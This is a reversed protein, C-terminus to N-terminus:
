LSKLIIPSMPMVMGSAVRHRSVHPAFGQATLTLQYEGEPLDVFCFHPGVADGKGDLYGLLIEPSGERRPIPQRKVGGGELEIKEVRVNLDPRRM